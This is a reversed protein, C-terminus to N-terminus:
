GNFGFIEGASSPVDGNTGTLSCGSAAVRRMDGQVYMICRPQVEGAESERSWIFFAHDVQHMKIIHIFM